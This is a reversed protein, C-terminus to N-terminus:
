RRRLAIHFIFFGWNNVVAFVDMKVNHGGDLNCDFLNVALSWDSFLKLIQLLWNRDIIDFFFFFFNCDNFILLKM